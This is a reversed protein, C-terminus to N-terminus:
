GLVFDFNLPKMLFRKLSFFDCVGQRGSLGLGYKKKSSTSKGCACGVSEASVKRWFAAKMRSDYKLSGAM